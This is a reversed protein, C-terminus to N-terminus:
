KVEEENENNEESKTLGVGRHGVKDAVFILGAIATFVGNIAGDPEYELGPILAAAIGAVTNAAWVGAVLFLLRSTQKKEM